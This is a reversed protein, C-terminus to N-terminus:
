IMLSLKNITRDSLPNTNFTQTKKKTELVNM